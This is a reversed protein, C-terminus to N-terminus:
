HFCLFTWKSPWVHCLHFVYKSNLKAMSPTAFLLRTEVQDSQIAKLTEQLSLMSSQHDRHVDSLLFLLPNIVHFSSDPQSAVHYRSAIASVFTASRIRWWFFRLAAAPSFFTFHFYYWHSSPCRALYVSKVPFAPLLSDHLVIAIHHASAVLCLAKRSMGLWEKLTWSTYTNDLIHLDLLPEQQSPRPRCPTDTEQKSSQGIPM